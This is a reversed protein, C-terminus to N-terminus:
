NPLKEILQALLEANNGDGPGSDPNRSWESPLRNSLWFICASTDPPIHKQFPTKIVMGRFVTFHVDEYTYGVAKHYIARKVRENAKDTGANYAEQFERHEAKWRELTDLDIEFFDAIEAETAALACIKEVQRAFERRYKVERSTTTASVDSGKQAAKM